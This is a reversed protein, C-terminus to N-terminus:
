VRLSPSTVGQFAVMQCGKSPAPLHLECLGVFTYPCFMRQTLHNEHLFPDCPTREDFVFSFVRWSNFKWQQCRFESQVKKHVTKKTEHGKKQPIETVDISRDVVNRSCGLM